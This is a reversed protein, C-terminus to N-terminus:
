QFLLFGFGTKLTLKQIGIGVIKRANKIHDTKYLLIQEQKKRHKLKQTKNKLVDDTYTRADISFYIMRKKM